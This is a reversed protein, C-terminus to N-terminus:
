ELIFIEYYFLKFLREFYIAIIRYTVRTELDIDILLIIRVCNNNFFCILLGFFFFVM